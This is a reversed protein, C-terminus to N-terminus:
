AHTCVRVIVKYKGNDDESISIIEGELSEDNDFISNAKKPFYGICDGCYAEYKEKDYDYSASVADGESCYYIAEQMTTNKNGQLCFDFCTLDEDVDDDEFDDSYNSGSSVSGRYFAIDILLNGNSAYDTFRAIVPNNLRLWDNLMDQLRGKNIYGVTHGDYVFKVANSDYTNEPEKCITLEIGPQLDPLGAKLNPPTYIGVKDYDYALAEGMYTEPWSGISNQQQVANIISAPFIDSNRKKENEKVRWRYFFFVALAFYFIAAYINRDICMVIGGLVSLFGLIKM